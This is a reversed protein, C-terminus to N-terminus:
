VNLGAGQAKCLAAYRGGQHVLENHSGDEVVRGAEITLIRDCNRV